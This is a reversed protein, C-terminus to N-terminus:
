DSYILQREEKFFLSLTNLKESIHFKQQAICYISTM